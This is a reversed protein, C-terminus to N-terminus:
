AAEKNLLPQGQELLRYIFFQEAEDLERRGAPTDCPIGSLLPRIEPKRFTVIRSRLWTYFRRPRGQLASAVHRSLRREVPTVTQGVYVCRGTEDFVGYVTGTM